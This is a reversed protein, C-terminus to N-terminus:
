SRRLPNEPSQEALFLRKPNPHGKVTVGLMEMLEREFLDTGPFIGTITDIEPNEKSLSTRLNIVIGEHAMHYLVEISEEVDVGSIMIIRQIGSNYLREMIEKVNASEFAAWIENGNRHMEGTLDRIVNDINM